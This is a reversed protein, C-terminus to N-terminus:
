INNEHISYWGLDFDSIDLDIGYCPNNKKTGKMIEISYCKNYKNKLTDVDFEKKFYSRIHSTTNSFDSSFTSKLFWSDINVKRKGSINKYIAAIENAYEEMDNQSLYPLINSNCHARELQRLFFIYLADAVKARGLDIKEWNGDIEASIIDRNVKIKFPENYKVKNKLYKLENELVAIMNNYDATGNITSNLVQIRDTMKQIIEKPDPKVVIFGMTMTNHSHRRPHNAEEKADLFRSYSTGSLRQFNEQAAFRAFSLLMKLAEEPRLDGFEECTCLDCRENNADEDHKPLCRVTLVGGMDAALCDRLSDIAEAVLDDEFAVSMRARLSEPTLEEQSLCHLKFPFPQLETNDFLVYGSHEVASMVKNLDENQKSEVYYITDFALHGSVSNQIISFPSESM